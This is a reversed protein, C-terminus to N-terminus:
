PSQYCHSKRPSFLLGDSVSSLSLKSKTWGSSLMLEPQQSNFWRGKFLQYLSSIEWFNFPPLGFSIMFKSISPVRVPRHLSLVLQCPFFLNSSTFNITNPLGTGPSSFSRPQVPSPGALVPFWLVACSQLRLGTQPGKGNWSNWSRDFVPRSQDLGTKQYTLKNIDEADKPSKNVLRLEYIPSHRAKEWSFGGNMSKHIAPKKAPFGVLWWIIFPPSKGLFVRWEDVYSHRTKQCSVGGIMLNHIAPPKKCSFRVNTLGVGVM